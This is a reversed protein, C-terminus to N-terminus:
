DLYFLILYMMLSINRVTTLMLVKLEVLMGGLVLLQNISKEVLEAAFTKSTQILYAIARAVLKMGAEDGQVLAKLLYKAFRPVRKTEDGANEVLCAILIIGAKREDNDLSTM